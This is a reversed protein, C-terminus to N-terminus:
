DEKANIFKAVIQRAEKVKQTVKDGLKHSSRGACASFNYYYDDMAEVVQKPKLSMCASDFYIPASGDKKKELLKFDERIKEINLM